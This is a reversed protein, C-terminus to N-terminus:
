VFSKYILVTFGAIGGAVFTGVFCWLFRRSRKVLVANSVRPRRSATSGTEVDPDDSYAIELDSRQGSAPAPGSQEPLSAQASAPPPPASTSASMITTPLLTGQSYNKTHM